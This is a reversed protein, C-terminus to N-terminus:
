RGCGPAPHPPVPVLRGSAKELGPAECIMRRGKTRARKRLEPELSMLQKNLANCYQKYNCGTVIPAVGCCDLYLAMRLTLQRAASV